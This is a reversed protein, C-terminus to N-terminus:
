CIGQPLESWVTTIPCDFGEDIEHEQKTEFERGLGTTRALIKASSPIAPEDMLMETELLLGSGM